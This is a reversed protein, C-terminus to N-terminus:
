HKWYRSKRWDAPFGMAVVDVSPFKDMLELASRRWESAPSITDLLYALVVLTNYLRNGASRNFEQHLWRPNLPLKMAVTMERNWLRSHHACVNRVYSLHRIVSVLVQEDIGYAAAIEARDLGHRLYQIWLSLQGFTLVEAISWIPPLKPESYRSRYHRVFTEQSKLVESHLRQLCADYKRPNSFVESRLYAHSGYRLSLVNVWRTRLSVEIREIADLVLLRLKQDFAYLDFITALKTGPAFAHDDLGAPIENPVWYARVRYYNVHQLQHKARARDGVEM